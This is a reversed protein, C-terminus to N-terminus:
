KLLVMKRMASYNATQLRYIYVSSSLASGNFEVAHSGQPQIKNVLTQIIEGNLNFVELKVKSQIPIYYGIQTSPNFPNSFNQFLRYGNIINNSEASTVIGSDGWILEFNGEEFLWLSPKIIDTNVPDITSSLMFVQNNSVAIHHPVWPSEFSLITKRLNGVMKDFRRQGWYALYLSENNYDADFIRNGGFPPNNDLPELLNNWTDLITLENDTLWITSDSLILINGNNLGRISNVPFKWNTIKQITHDTDFLYLYPYHAFLITSDNLFVFGHEGFRHDDKFWPLLETPYKEVESVLLRSYHSDDSNNYYREILYVSNSDIAPSIMWDSGSHSSVLWPRSRSLEDWVMVCAKHQIDGVPYIYSWLLKNNVTVMDGTPHASLPYVCFLVLLFHFTSRIM